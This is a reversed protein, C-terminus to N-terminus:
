EIEYLANCFFGIVFACTLVGGYSQSDLASPLCGLCIVQCALSLLFLPKRAGILDSILPLVLRGLLNVGGLASNINAADSPKKGFQNQVISQIKSIILLGTIEAGLFMFYQFFGDM